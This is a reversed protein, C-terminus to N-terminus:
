QPWASLFSRFPLSATPFLQALTCDWLFDLSPWYVPLPTLRGPMELFTAWTLWLCPEMSPWLYSSNAMSWSPHRAEYLIQSPCWHNRSWRWELCSRQPCENMIIGQSGGSRCLLFTFSLYDLYSARLWGAWSVALIHVRASQNQFGYM